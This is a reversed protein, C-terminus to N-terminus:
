QPVPAVLTEGHAALLRAWSARNDPGFSGLEIIRGDSPDTLTLAGDAWQTVTFPPARGVEHLKRERALGRLVGRIFGSNSGPAVTLAVEGTAVDTAVLAGDARDGFRFSRSSVIGVHARARAQPATEPGPVLGTRVAAVGTITLAIIAGAAWLAQPPFHQVALHSM